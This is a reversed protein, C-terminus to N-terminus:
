VPTITLDAVLMRAFENAAIPIDVVGLAGVKAVNSIVFNDIATYARVAGQIDSIEIAQGLTKGNVLSLIAGTIFATTQSVNFGPRIKLTATLTVDVQTAEKFLLDRGTVRYDDVTFAAQLLPQLADYTYTISLSAGIAPLTLATATSFMPGSAARVSGANGTADKVLIFDVGQVYAGISQIQVVPQLLLPIVQDPGAYIHTETVSTPSSGIVYVDVAGGDIASRMNLPNNGFVVNADITEPYLDRLIKEIGRVVAPSSGIISLLYREILETNTESSKGGTAPTKNTVSDFGNLARLPRTIRYAAVDNTATNTVARASVSLEYRQTTNNFYAGANAAVMTTDAVTVFTAAVNTQEDQLTAVPFNAKVTLDAAPPTARSFTLVARSKSGTSRTLLENYVFSDVDTTTFVTDNSLSLLQQVSRTRENQLELVGAVPNIVLDPIPGVRTDYQNNRTLIADELDVAFEQATKKQITM